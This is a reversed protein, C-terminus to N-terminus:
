LIRLVSERYIHINNLHVDFISYNRKRRGVTHPQVTQRNCMDALFVCGIVVVFECDSWFMGSCMVLLCRTVTTRNASHFFTSKPM